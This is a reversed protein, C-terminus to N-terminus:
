QRAAKEAAREQKQREHTQIDGPFRCYATLPASKATSNPSYLHLDEFRALKPGRQFTAEYRGLLQGRADYANWVARFWWRGVNAVTLSTREYRQIQNAWPDIVDVANIGANEDLLWSKKELFLKKLDGKVKAIALYRAFAEDGTATAKELWEPNPPQDLNYCSEAPGTMTPILMIVPAQGAAAPARGLLAAFAAGILATRRM